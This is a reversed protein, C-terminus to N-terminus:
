PAAALPQKGVLLLHLEAMSELFDAFRQVKAVVNLFFDIPM